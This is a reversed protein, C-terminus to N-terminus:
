IFFILIPCRISTAASSANLSNLLYSSVHYGDTLGSDKVSDNGYEMRILGILTDTDATQSDDYTLPITTRSVKLYKKKAM